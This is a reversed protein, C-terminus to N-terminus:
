RLSRVQQLEHIDASNRDTQVKIEAVKQTLGPVDALQTSLVTLQSNSVALQTVVTQLTTGQKELRNDFSKFVYGLLFVMLAFVGAIVWREVLGLKFQMHDNDVRTIDM